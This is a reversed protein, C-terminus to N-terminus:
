INVGYSEVQIIEIEVLGYNVILIMDNVSLSIDDVMSVKIYFYYMFM